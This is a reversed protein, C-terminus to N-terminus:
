LAREGLIGEMMTNRIALQLKGGWGCFPAWTTSGNQIKVACLCHPQWFDAALLVNISLRRASLHRSLWRVGCRTPIKASEAGGLQHWWTGPDPYYRKHSRLEHGSGWWFAPPSFVPEWLSIGLWTVSKSRAWVAGTRMFTTSERFTHRCWCLYGRCTTWCLRAAVSDM